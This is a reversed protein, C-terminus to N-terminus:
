FTHSIRLPDFPVDRTGVLYPLSMELWSIFAILILQIPNWYSNENMLICIQVHCSFSSFM